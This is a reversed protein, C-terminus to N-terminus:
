FTEDMAVGADINWNFCVTCILNTKMQMVFWVCKPQVTNDNNPMQGDNTPWLVFLRRRTHALNNM